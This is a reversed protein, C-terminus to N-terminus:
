VWFPVRSRFRAFFAFAVIWGVVLTAGSLEWSSLLVPNGMLPERVIEIMAFFPNAQLLWVVHGHLTRADWFIPTLFFVIQIMSAVIPGVDRFRAGVMGLLLAV